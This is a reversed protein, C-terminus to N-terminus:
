RSLLAFELLCSVARALPEPGNGKKFARIKIPSLSISLHISVLHGKDYQYALMQRGVVLGEAASNAALSLLTLLTATYLQAM